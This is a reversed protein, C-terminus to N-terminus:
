VRVADPRLSTLEEIAVHSGYWVERDLRARAILGQRALSRLADEVTKKPVGLAAAVEHSLTVRFVEDPHENLYELVRARTGRVRHGSEPEPRGGRGRERRPVDEIKV